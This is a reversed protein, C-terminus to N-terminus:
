RVVCALYKLCIQCVSNRLAAILMEFWYRVLISLHILSKLGLSLADFPTGAYRVYLRKAKLQTNALDWRQVSNCCIADICRTLM